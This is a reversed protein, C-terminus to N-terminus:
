IAVAKLACVWGFATRDRIGVIEFTRDIAEEAGFRNTLKVRNGKMPETGIYRIEAEVNEIDAYSVWSERSPKDTFACDIPVETTEVVPDNYEDYTGSAVDILLYAEDSFFLSRTRQALQNTLRENALTM